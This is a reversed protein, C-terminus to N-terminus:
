VSQMARRWLRMFSFGGLQFTWLVFVLIDMFGEDTIFMYLTLLGGGQPVQCKNMKECVISKKCVWQVNRDVSSSLNKNM